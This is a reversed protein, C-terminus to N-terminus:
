SLTMFPGSSDVARTDADFLEHRARGRAKAQYMAIDADRMIEDPNNYQARGFAIGISASIFVERGGVRWSVTTFASWLRVRFIPTPKRERNSISTTPLGERGITKCIRALAGRCRDVTKTVLGVSKQPRFRHKSAAEGRGGRRKILEAVIQEV